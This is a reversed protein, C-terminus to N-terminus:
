CETVHRHGGDDSRLPAVFALALDRVEERLLRIQDDAVLAAVVGAMGDHVLESCELEMEDRRADEVRVRHADEAGAHDDVERDEAVLDPHELRAADRRRIQPEGITRLEEHGPVDREVAEVLALAAAALQARRALPDSGRVRVLDRPMADLDVLHAFFAM